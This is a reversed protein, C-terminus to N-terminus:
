FLFFHSNHFYTFLTKNWSNFYFGTLTMIML